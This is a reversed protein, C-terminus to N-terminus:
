IGLNEIRVRVHAGPQFFDPDTSVTYGLNRGWCSISNGDRSVACGLNGLADGGIAVTKFVDGANAFLTPAYVPGGSSVASCYNANGDVAGGWAYLKGDADLGATCLYRAALSSLVVGTSTPTPTSSSIGDGDGLQGGFDAGWCSVIAGAGIACSTTSGLAVAALVQDAEGLSGTSALAAPLNNDAGADRGLQYSTGLGFCELSAFTQDTVCTHAPGAHVRGPAGSSRAVVHPTTLTGGAQGDDNRGWCWLENETDDTVVACVHATGADISLVRRAAIGNAPRPVVTLGASTNPNAVSVGSVVGYTDDGWCVILAEAEANRPVACMAFDAAVVADWTGPIQLPTAVPDSPEGDGSAVANANVGWCWIEGASTLACAANAGVAVDVFTPPPSADVTAADVTAACNTGTAGPCVGGSCLGGGPCIDGDTCALECSPAPPTFCAAASGALLTVLNM